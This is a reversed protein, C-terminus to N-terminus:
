GCSTAGRISKTLTDVSAERTSLSRYGAPRRAAGSAARQTPAAAPRALDWSVQRGCSRRAAEKALRSPAVGTTALSLAVTARRGGFSASGCARQGCSDFARAAGPCPCSQERCGGPGPAVIRRGMRRSAVVVWKTRLCAAKPAGASAGILGALDEAAKAIGGFLGMCGALAGGRRRSPRASAASPGATRRLPQPPDKHTEWVDM